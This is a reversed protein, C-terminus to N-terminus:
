LAELINEWYTNYADDGNEYNRQIEDHILKKVADLQLQSLNM